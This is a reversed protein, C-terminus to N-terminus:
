LLYRMIFGRHAGARNTKQLSFSIKQKKQNDGSSCLVSKFLNKLRYAIAEFVIKLRCLIPNLLMKLWCPSAISNQAPKLDLAKGIVKNIKLSAYFNENKRSFQFVIIAKLPSESRWSNRPILRHSQSDVTGRSRPTKEQMM